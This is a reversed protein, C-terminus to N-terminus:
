YRIPRPARWFLGGHYKASTPSDQGVGLEIRRRVAAGVHQARSAYCCTVGDSHAKLITM